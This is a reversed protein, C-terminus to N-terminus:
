LIGRVLSFREAYLVGVELGRLRALTDVGYTSVLTNSHLRAAYCELAKLKLDFYDTVNKYVHGNVFTTCDQLWGSAPYEYAFIWKVGSSKTPRLAAGCVRWVYDHDQHFSPLPIYVKTPNYKELMGELLAVAEGMPVMNLSSDFGSVLIHYDKVGLIGMSASFEGSRIKYDEAINKAHFLGAVMVVVVVEEGDELASAILGGCGIEADDCHPAIILIM